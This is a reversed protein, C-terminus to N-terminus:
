GLILLGVMFLHSILTLGGRLDGQPETTVFAVLLWSSAPEMGPREWHNLTWRYRSSHHLDYVHSLDQMAAAYTPLQQQELPVGLRLVKKKKKQRKLALGKAYPPKWALPRILAAAAPRYWLWLLSLQSGYRHSWWLENCCRIRLRSLSALSGVQTRM